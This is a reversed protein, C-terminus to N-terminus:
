ACEGENTTVAWCSFGTVGGRYLLGALRDIDPATGPEGAAAGKPYRAALFHNVILLCGVARKGFAIHLLM